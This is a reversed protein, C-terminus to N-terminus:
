RGTMLDHLHKYFADRGTRPDNLYADMAKKKAAGVRAARVPAGADAQAVLNAPDLAMKSQQQQLTTMGKRAEEGGSLQSKFAELHDLVDKTLGADGARGAALKRYDGM